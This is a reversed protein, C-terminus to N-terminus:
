SRGSSTRPRTPSITDVSPSRTYRPSSSAARPRCGVWRSAAGVKPGSARCSSTRVMYTPWAMVPASIVRRPLANILVAAATVSATPPVGGRPSALAYARHADCILHAVELHQLGLGDVDDALDRRRDLLGSQQEGAALVRDDHQVEGHLGEPRRRHGERDHVDVGALVEVLDDLEPVLGHLLVAQPQDHGADLVVDVRAPHGLVVRARGAVPQLGDGEQAADVLVLEPGDEAAGAAVLLLGPGLLPHEAEAVLEALPIGPVLPRLQPAEVVAPVALALVDAREGEGVPGLEVDPGVDPVLLDLERVEVVRVPALDDLPVAHEEGHVPEDLRGLALVRELGRHAEPGDPVRGAGATDLGRGRGGVVHDGLDRRGPQRLPAPSAGVVADRLGAHLAALLFAAELSSRSRSSGSLVARSSPASRASSPGSRLSRGPPTDILANSRMAVAPETSSPLDVSMPRRSYSEFAIKSSWSLATSAVLRERPWSTGSRARSVSPRRASRSCPMVISTAYRYKAVGFRFNMMASVGPCMWYVRLMTVPAEVASTARMRMSARLPTSSCDRRCAKRALRSPMGWRTTQMLLISRTSYECCRKSSIRSSNRRKAIFSSTLSRCNM